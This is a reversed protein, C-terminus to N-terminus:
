PNCKSKLTFQNSVLKLPVFNAVRVKTKEGCVSESHAYILEKKIPTLKLNPCAEM